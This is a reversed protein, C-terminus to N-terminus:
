CEEIALETTAPKSYSKERFIDDSPFSKIFYLCKYLNVINKIIRMRMEKRWVNYM